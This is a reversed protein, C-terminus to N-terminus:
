VKSNNLSKSLSKCWMSLCIFILFNNWATRQEEVGRYTEQQDDSIEDGEESVHAQRVLKREVVVNVEMFNNAPHNKTLCPQVSYRM